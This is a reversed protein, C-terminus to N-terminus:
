LKIVDSHFGDIRYEKMMASRSTHPVHTVYSGLLHSPLRGMLTETDNYLVREDNNIRATHLDDTVYSGLLHSLLRGMLTETGNYLVREDNSIRATHQVHTM